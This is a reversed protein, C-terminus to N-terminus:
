NNCKRIRSSRARTTCFFLLGSCLLWLAGPLPVPTASTVTVLPTYLGLIGSPSGDIQLAFLANSATPDSTTVLSYTATSDLIFFSFTDPLESGVPASTTADLQFSIISGLGLGQLNDNFFSTGGVTSLTVNGPLSGTVSGSNPGAVGLTGDTSFDSFTLNNNQTGGGAVFDFALTAGTGTLSSTNITVDYVSDAWASRGLGFPLSILSFGIVLALTTPSRSCRNRIAM